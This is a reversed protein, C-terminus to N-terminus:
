EGQSPTDTSRADWLMGAATPMLAKPGEAGCEQCYVLNLEVDDAFITKMDLFEFGSGCFPCPKM